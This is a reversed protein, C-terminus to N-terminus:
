DVDGLGEIWRAAAEPGVGRGEVVVLVVRYDVDELGELPPGAAEPAVGDPDPQV